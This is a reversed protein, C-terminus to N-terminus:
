PFVLSFFYFYTFLKMNTKKKKEKLRKTLSIVAEENYGTFRGSGMTQGIADVKIRM